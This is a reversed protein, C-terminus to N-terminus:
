NVKLLFITGEPADSPLTNGYQMKASATATRVISSIGTNNLLLIFMEAQYITGSGYNINEQVLNTFTNVSSAYDVTFSVQNFAETTATQSLDINAKVRAYPKDADYAVTVNTDGTVAFIGGAVNMLGSKIVFNYGSTETACGCLIGDTLASNFGGRLGKATPAQNDFLIGKIAM